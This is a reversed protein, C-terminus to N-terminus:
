KLPIGFIEIKQYHLFDHTLLKIRIKKAKIPIDSKWVFPSGDLGGFLEESDKVFFSDWENKTENFLEISFKIGRRQVIENDIRNYIRIESILCTNEFDISWWPCSEIDTHFGYVFNIDKSIAGKSDIKTDGSRSYNCCSSQDTNANITLDVLDVPSPLLKGILEDKEKIAQFSYNKDIPTTTILDGLEKYISLETFDKSFDLFRELLPFLYNKDSGKKLHSAVLHDARKVFHVNFGELVFMGAHVSDRWERDGYLIHTKTKAEDISFTIFRKNNITYGVDRYRSDFNIFDSEVSFQPAFSLIRDLKKYFKAFAICGSGGMSEGMAAVHKDKSCINIIEELSEQYGFSNYWMPHKEILFVLSINLKLLTNKFEEIPEGLGDKGASAFVVVVADTNKDYYSIKYNELNILRGEM